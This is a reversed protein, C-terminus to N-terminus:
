SFARLFIVVSSASTFESDEDVEDRLDDPEEPTSPRVGRVLRRKHPVSIPELREDESDSIRQTSRGASRKNRPSPAADNENSIEIISSTDTDEEIHTIQPKYRKASRRRPSAEEDDEDNRPQSAYTQLKERPELQVVAIDSDYDESEENLSSASASIRGRAYARKRKSKSATPVPSTQSKRRVAPQSQSPSNDNAVYGFLTTQKM